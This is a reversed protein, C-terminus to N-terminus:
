LCSIAISFPPLSSEWGGSATWATLGLCINLTLVWARQILGAINLHEPWGTKCRSPMKWCSFRHYVLNSVFRYLSGLNAISERYLGSELVLPLVTFCFTSAQVELGLESLANSSGLLTFAVCHSETRCVFWAFPLSFMHKSCASDETSRAVDWQECLFNKSAPDRVASWVM